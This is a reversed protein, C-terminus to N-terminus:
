KESIFNRIMKVRCVLDMVLSIEPNKKDYNLQLLIVAPEHIYSQDDQYNQKERHYFTTWSDDENISLFTVPHVKRRSKIKKDESANSVSCSSQQM